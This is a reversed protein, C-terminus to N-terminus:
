RILCKEVLSAGNGNHGNSKLKTKLMKVSYITEPTGSRSDFECSTEIALRAIDEPEDMLDYTAYMSGLAFEAGSGIAWFREYEYVERWSYMGFIGYPNAILADIQSSEYTDRDGETVNIFYEEKLIPHLKLYSEFIQQVSNFSIQDHYKHAISCVVNNHAASGVVGIFSNGCQHIKKRGTIYKATVKTDGYSSMSDAAIVTKGAKKVVVITSM